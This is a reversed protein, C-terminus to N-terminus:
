PSPGFLPIPQQGAPWQGGEGAGGVKQLPGPEQGRPCVGPTLAWGHLVTESAPLTPPLEGYAEGLISCGSLARTESSPVGSPGPPTVADDAVSGVAERPVQWAAEVAAVGEVPRAHPPQVSRGVPLAPDGAWPAALACGCGASPHM